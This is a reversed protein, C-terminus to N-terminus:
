DSTCGLVHEVLQVGDNDTLLVPCGAAKEVDEVTLDDLFLDRERRLMVSPILLADGLEEGELRYLLDKGTILGAVTINPGFCRNEVALVRVSVQPFLRTIEGALEELIPAASKGTAITVRREVSPSYSDELAEEVEKRLLSVLGVGNELQSFEGYYSAQPFPRGALLFFEDSPAAVREGEEGPNEESFREIQDIVRAAGERDFLKLPFLGDRHRTLGVPVVAVSQLAPLLKKMDRLSRDLHEGDNVGPCLVLQTNIRIGAKALKDLYVLSAGARPNGMMRVRLEPDTTHISVNIPSIRMKIIRDIDTEELNTLTIYNGFLFSMRSDDDKFYLSQRMGRPLQDIFCFICKNRCSRQKDMLYTDFILGIDDYEGKRVAVKRCGGDEDRVLLELRDDMLYFRYDLVDNISAGGIQLLKEGPRIGLREAISGPEVGSITVAVTRTVQGVCFSPSGSM